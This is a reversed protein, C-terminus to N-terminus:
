VFTTIKFEFEILRIKKLIRELHIFSAKFYSGLNYWERHETYCSRQKNELHFKFKEMEGSSPYKAKNTEESHCHM